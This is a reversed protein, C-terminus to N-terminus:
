IYVYTGRAVVRAGWQGVREGAEERQGARFIQQDTDHCQKHQCHYHYLYLRGVNQQIFPLCVVVVFFFFFCQKDKGGRGGDWDSVM